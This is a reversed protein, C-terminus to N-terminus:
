GVVIDLAQILNHHYGAPNPTLKSTQAAGARNTARFMLNFAGKQEPRFPYHWPRWSFRGADQGLGTNRWRQGGDISVEVTQIGFGGDWAVGHIDIPHGLPFQQGSEINTVLSNVMIDTVPTNVDSDQSTFGQTTPFVGKPVRYATKMWFGDFPKAVISISRLHKVWYTATWGPVVLRAPYGNWHPLPEGNMQFAILTNEDIAKWIPLSKVFDPTAPLLAADAGDLVVELAERGIGAKSLVDKLRIGRWRANGMAGYGWQIGPVHPEFLGRRNGSCQNVAAIEVQEFHKTLEDLTFELTKEAAEGGIRLRWERVDVQPIGALHYRVFFADNPTFLENFYSVPTEFNPPRYSRKILPKKGPLTELIGAELAGSPLGASSLRPIFGGASTVAAGVLGKLLDRRLAM